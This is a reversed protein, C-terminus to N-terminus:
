PVSLAATRRGNLTVVSVMYNGASLSSVDIHENISGNTVTAPQSSVRVGNMDYVEITVKGNPLDKMSVSASHDAPNPAVNLNGLANYEGRSPSDKDSQGRAPPLTGDWLIFRLAARKDMDFMGAMPGGFKHEGDGQMGELKERLEERWQEIQDENADFIRRLVERSRKAIPRVRDLLARMNDKLEDRDSNSLSHMNQKISKAESRLQKLTSLDEASLSADYEDHWKKLSPYVSSEFWGRIEQKVQKNQKGHQNAQAMTTIAVAAVFALLLINRTM